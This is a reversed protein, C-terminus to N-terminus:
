RSRGAQADRGADHAGSCEQLGVAERLAGQALLGRIGGHHARPRPHPERVQIARSRDTAEQLGRPGGARRVEQARDVRGRDRADRLLGHFRSIARAPPVTCSLTGRGRSRPGEGQSNQRREVASLQVERGRSHVSRRQSVEPGRAAQVRLRAPRREGDVVRRPEAGHASPMPKVLADHIAYLVWFPTILGVVEGPDFWVPSLTVYLAWRMEGEPKAQATANGFLCVSLLVLALGVSTLALRLPLHRRSNMGQRWSWM